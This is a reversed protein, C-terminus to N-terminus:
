RLAKSKEYFSKKHVEHIEGANNFRLKFKSM